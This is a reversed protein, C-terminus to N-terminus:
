GNQGILAFLLDRAKAGDARKVAADLEDIASRLTKADRLNQRACMIKPHKTKEVNAIDYFLEEFLKEGPRPGLVVIEIDGGPNEANRLTRGALRIMNEALDRIRVPNGMDLLFVEGNTSLSAAQIILEAAESAAMFYRTMDEHTLTVPGGTEIQEKFLPVASGQSGIVNGFRVACFQQQAGSTATQGGMGRVIFEAWRKTAGMVNTPRVAKDTSILVFREVGARRAADAITWTGFVNNVIGALPNTEVLPVHKYAAAHFVTDVAYAGFLRDVLARDTVSGLMPVVETKGRRALKRDIEYLAFEDMELLVLRAPSLLMIQRVLESGISGGAGTVLVSKDKVSAHLLEPDPEVMPRGLIDEIGIERISDVLNDGFTRAVAPLFRTRVHSKALEGFIRSKEGDEIADGCVIVESIRFTSVLEPLKRAAYVKLGAVEADELAPDADLFGVPYSNVDAKLAAALQRGMAGAGYILIRVRGARTDAATGLFRRAAMRSASIFLTGIIGYIVPVSRPVQAVGRFETMFVFALWLLASVAMAQAIAWITKETAFRVVVRYVGFRELVPLAIAPAVLMLWMQTESPEYWRSYRLVYALWIALLLLGFDVLAVMVRKVWRPLSILRAVLAARM